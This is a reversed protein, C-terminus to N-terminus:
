ERDKLWQLTHIDNETAVNLLIKAELFNQYSIGDYTSCRIYGPLQEKDIYEDEFAVYHTTEPHEELWWHIENVRYSSLKKPTRWDSHLHIPDLGNKEMTHQCVNLGKTAWTSSIVIKADSLEILKNVLSVAIPDFISYLRTQNPLHIARMPIMPGDWDLFIIRNSM